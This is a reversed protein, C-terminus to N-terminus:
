SQVIIALVDQESAVTRIRDETDDAIIARTLQRLVTLHENAKAAIGIIIQVQHNEEDWPIPTRCFLVKLGTELVSDRMDTTGHPIAFGKDLYTSIEEDRNLMAQTYDATVLGAEIMKSAVLEIMEKKTHSGDVFFIDNETLQLSSM